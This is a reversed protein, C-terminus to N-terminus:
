IDVRDVFVKVAVDIQTLTQSFLQDGYTALILWWLAVKFTVDFSTM